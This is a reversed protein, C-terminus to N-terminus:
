SFAYLNILWKKLRKVKGSLIERGFLSFHHSLPLGDAHCIHTQPTKYRACNELLTRDSLECRKDGLPDSQVLDCFRQSNAYNYGLLNFDVDYLAINNGTVISFDKMVNNLLEICYNYKM